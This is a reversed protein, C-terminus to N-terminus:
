AAAGKTLGLRLLLSKYIERFMEVDAMGRTKEGYWIEDFHKTPSRFEVGQPLRSSGEIRRLHEWNTEHRRFTAVRADDFRMLAALYLCRVAERYKGEAAFGDARELWEDATRDPEDDDLLGGGRTAQKGRRVKVLFYVLFSLLAIALIWIVTTMVAQSLGAPLGTPQFQVDPRDFLSALWEFFREVLSQFATSFWNSDEKLGADKYTPDALIRDAEAGVDAVQGTSINSSDERLRVLTLLEQKAQEVGDGDLTQQLGADSADELLNEPLESLLREMQAETKIQTIRETLDSAKALWCLSLLGFTAIMQRWFTM